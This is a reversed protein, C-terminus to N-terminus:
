QPPMSRPYIPSMHPVAQDTRNDRTEETMEGAAAKSKVKPQAPFLELPVTVRREKQKVKEQPCGQRPQPHCKL